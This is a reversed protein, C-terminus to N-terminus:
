PPVRTTNEGGKVEHIFRQRCISSTVVKNRARIWSLDATIVKLAEFQVLWSTRVQSIWIGLLTSSSSTQESIWFRNKSTWCKRDKFVRSNVITILKKSARLMEQSFSTVQTLHFQGSYIPYRYNHCSFNTSVHMATWVGNLLWSFHFTPSHFGTMWHAM